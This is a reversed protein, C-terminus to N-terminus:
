IGWIGLQESYKAKKHKLTGVLWKETGKLESGPCPQPCWNSTDPGLLSVFWRSFSSFKAFLWLPRSPSLSGGSSEVFGHHMMQWGARHQTSALPVYERRIKFVLSSPLGQLQALHYLKFLREVSLCNWNLEANNLFSFGNRNISRILLLYFITM